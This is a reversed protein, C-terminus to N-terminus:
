ACSLDLNICKMTLHLYSSEELLHQLTCSTSGILGDNPDGAKWRPMGLELELWEM